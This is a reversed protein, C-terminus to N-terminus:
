RVTLRLEVDTDTQLTQTGTGGTGSQSASYSQESRAVTTWEGLPVMLVSSMHAGPDAGRASIALEVWESGDWRPTAVFGTGSELLVTGQTILLTGNRVFSQMVRLPTSNRLAIRAKHGNLVLIRQISQQSTDSASDATQANDHRVQRVEIQLNRLPLEANSQAGSIIAAYAQVVPTVAMFKALVLHRVTIM